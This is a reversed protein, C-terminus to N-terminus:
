HNLFTGTDRKTRTVVLVLSKLLNLSSATFFFRKNPVLYYPLLIPMSKAWSIRAMSIIYHM